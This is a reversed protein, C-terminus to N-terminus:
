NNLSVRPIKMRSAFYILKENLRDSFLFIIYGVFISGGYESEILREMKSSRSVWSYPLMLGSHSMFKIINRIFYTEVVIIFLEIMMLIFIITDTAAKNYGKAQLQSVTPIPISHNLFTFFYGLLVYLAAIIYMNGTRWSIRAIKRLIYEKTLTKM